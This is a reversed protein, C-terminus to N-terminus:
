SGAPSKRGALQIMEAAVALTDFMMKPGIMLCPLNGAKAQRKLWATPVRLKQAAERLELLGHPAPADPGTSVPPQGPDDAPVAHATAMTAVTAVTPATTM